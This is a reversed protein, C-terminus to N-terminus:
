KGFPVGTAIGIYAPAWSPYTRAGEFPRHAWPRTEKQTRGLWDTTIEFNRSMLNDINPLGTLLHNPHEQVGSGLGEGWDPSAAKYAVINGTDRDRVRIFAERKTELRLPAGGFGLVTGVFGPDHHIRSYPASQPSAGTWTIDLVEPNRITSQPQEFPDLKMTGLEVRGWKPTEVYGRGTANDIYSVAKIDRIKPAREHKRSGHVYVDAFREDIDGSEGTYPNIDELKTARNFLSLDERQEVPRRRIVDPLEEPSTELPRVAPPPPASPPPPPPPPTPPPPPVPPATPATPRGFTPTPPAKPAPVAPAAPIKPAVPPLATVPPKAEPRMRQILQSIQPQGFYGAGGGLAGGLLAGPAGGLLGGGLLGAGGGIIGYQQQPTLGGWFKSIGELFGGPEVAKKEFGIVFGIQHTGMKRLVDASLEDRLKRITSKVSRGKVLKKGEGEIKGPRQFTDPSFMPSTLPPGQPHEGYYATGFNSEQAKILLNDVPNQPPTQLQGTPPQNPGSPQRAPRAAGPGSEGFATQIPVSPSVVDARPTVIRLSPTGTPTPPTATQALKQYLGHVISM